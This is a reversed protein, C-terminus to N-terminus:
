AILTPYVDNAGVQTMAPNEALVSCILQDLAATRVAMFAATSSKFLQQQEVPPADTSTSSSSTSAPNCQSEASPDPLHTGAPAYAALLCLQM